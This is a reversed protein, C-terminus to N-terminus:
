CDGYRTVARHFSSVCPERSLRWTVHALAARRHANSAQRCSYDGRIDACWWNRCSCAPTTDPTQAGVETSMAVPLLGLTAVLTTMLCPRLRKQAAGDAVEEVSLGERKLRQFYTVDLIADQIAIGFISIFGMAASVSFVTQTMSM